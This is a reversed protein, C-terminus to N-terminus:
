QVSIGSRAVLLAYKATEALVFRTFEQPTATPYVPAGADAYAQRRQPDALAKLM